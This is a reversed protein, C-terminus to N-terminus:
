TGCKGFPENIYRQSSAISLPGIIGGIMAVRPAYAYRVTVEVADCPGGADGETVASYSPYRYSRYTVTANAPDPLHAVATKAESVICNGRNSGGSPCTARGTIAYRSGRAAADRLSVWSNFLLGMEFVGFMLLFFIPAVMAFEVLVQGHETDGKGRRKM